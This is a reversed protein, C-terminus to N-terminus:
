HTFGRLVYKGEIHRPVVVEDAILRELTHKLSEISLGTMDVIQPITLGEPNDRLIEIIKRETETMHARVIAFDYFTGLLPKDIRVALGHRVFKELVEIAVEIGIGFEKILHLPSLIGGYKAALDVVKQQLRSVEVEEAKRRSLYLLYLPHSCVGSTLGLLVGGLIAAWTVNLTIGQWIATFGFIGFLLAFAIIGVQEEESYFPKYALLIHPNVYMRIYASGIFSVIFLIFFTTIAEIIMVM